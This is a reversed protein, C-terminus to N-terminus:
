PKPDAKCWEIVEEAPMDYRFGAAPFNTRPDVIMYDGHNDPVSGTRSKRATYGASRAARRARADLTTPTSPFLM